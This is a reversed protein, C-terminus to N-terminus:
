RAEVIGEKRQGMHVAIFIVVFTLPDLSKHTHGITDDRDSTAPM